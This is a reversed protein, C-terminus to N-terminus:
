CRSFFFSFFPFRFPYIMSNCAFFKLVFFGDLIGSLFPAKGSEDTMGAIASEAYTRPLELKDPAPM